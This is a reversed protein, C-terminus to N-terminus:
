MVSAKLSYALLIFLLMFTFIIFVFIFSLIRIFLLESRLGIYIFLGAILFVFVLLVLLRIYNGQLIAEPYFLYFILYFYTLLAIFQTIIVPSYRKFWSTIGHETPFFMERTERKLETELLNEVKSPPLKKSDAAKAKFVKGAKGKEASM